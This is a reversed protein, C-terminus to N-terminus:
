EGWKNGRQKKREQKNLYASYIVGLLGANGYLTKRGVEKTKEKGGLKGTIRDALEETGNKGEIYDMLTQLVQTGKGSLITQILMQMPGSNPDVGYQDRFLNEWKMKETELVKNKTDQRMNKTQEKILNRQEILNNTQEKIQDWEANTKGKLGPLLEKIQNAQEDTLKGQKRALNTRAMIEAITAENMERLTGNEIEKGEAEAKLKRNDWWTKGADAATALASQLTGITSGVGSGGTPASVLGANGVNTGGGFFANPNGGARTWRKIQEEPSNYANSKEWMETQYEQEAKMKAMDYEYERAQAWKGTLYDEATDYLGGLGLSIAMKRIWSSNKYDEDNGLDNGNGSRKQITQASPETIRNEASTSEIAM